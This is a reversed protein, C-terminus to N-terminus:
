GLNWLLVTLWAYGAAFLALFIGLGVQVPRRAYNFGLNSGFRDEV